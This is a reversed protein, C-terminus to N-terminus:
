RAFICSANAILEALMLINRNTLSAYKWEHTSRVMEDTLPNNQVRRVVQSYFESLINAYYITGHIFGVENETEADYMTLSIQEEFRNGRSLEVQREMAKDGTTRSICLENKM